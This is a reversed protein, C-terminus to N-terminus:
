TTRSVTDRRVKLRRAIMEGRALDMFGLLFQLPHAEVVERDLTDVDVVASDSNRVVSTSASSLVSIEQVQNNHISEPRAGSLKLYSSFSLSCSFSHFVGILLQFYDTFFLMFLAHIIIM